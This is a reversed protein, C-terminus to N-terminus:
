LLAEVTSRNLSHPSRVLTSLPCLTKGALPGNLVFSEAEPRDSIEWAEGIPGSHEPLTRNLIEEMKRGGWIRPVYVPQFKLPYLKEAQIYESM